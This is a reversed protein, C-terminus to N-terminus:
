PGKLAPIDAAKPGPKITSLWAHIDAVDQDSVFPKPFRPMMQRPNRLQMEFGVLPYVNPALQPGTGRDGGQGQTGHCSFCMNKMYVAQGRSADGKLDTAQASAASSALMLTIALINKM